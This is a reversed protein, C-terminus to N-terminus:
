VCTSNFLPFVDLISKFLLCLLITSYFCRFFSLFYPLFKCPWCNWQCYIGFQCIGISQFLLWSSIFYSSVLIAYLYITLFYFFHVFINLFLICLYFPLTKKKSFTDPMHTHSVCIKVFSYRYKLKILIWILFFIM